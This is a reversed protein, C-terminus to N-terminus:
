IRTDPFVDLQLKKITSYHLISYQNYKYGGQFKIVYDIWKYNSEKDAKSRRREKKQRPSVVTTIIVVSVNHHIQSPRM